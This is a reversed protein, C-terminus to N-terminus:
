KGSLISAAVFALVSAILGFMFINYSIRLLKYKRGLVVGQAYVDKILTGYLFDRDNMVQLMGASYDPLNMKYFNGFFLLNVKKEDIDQQTFTGTPLNPRTALISFIITLVSVTLILYTPWALYSYEELKRLLISIVASLIISNVTIMIQAKNDAMDSLRQNNNSTIRFMTEIGRDPRKSRSEKEAPKSNDAAPSASGAPLATAAPGSVPEAIPQQVLKRAAKEKKEEAKGKLRNLNEQKTDNLLLQCYSTFYHHNELLRITGLRWEDKNIAAGTKLEMEKRMLKNKDPFESTGLHFLDADCVIQQLLNKPAQPMRTALICQRIEDIVPEEVGQGHLFAAALEAGRSEHDSYDVYYGADHFWAASVVIFYDRENLQYHDAIQSAAKVVGQTHPLNHYVLHSDAQSHFFDLQHRAVRQLLESFNM